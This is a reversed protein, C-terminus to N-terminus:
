FRGLISSFLSASAVLRITNCLNSPAATVHQGQPKSTLSHYALFPDHLPAFTIYMLYVHLSYQRPPGSHHIRTECTANCARSQSMRELGHQPQILICEQSPDYREILQKLMYSFADSQLFQQTQVQRRFIPPCPSASTPPGAM